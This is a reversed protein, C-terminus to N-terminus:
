WLYRKLLRSRSPHKMRRIWRERIQLTRYRALDFKEGMEGYTMEKWNELGYYWLIVSKEGLTLTNLATIIDARLSERDMKKYVDDL